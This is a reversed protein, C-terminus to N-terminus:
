SNRTQTSRKRPSSECSVKCARKLINDSNCRFTLTGLEKGRGWSPDDAELETFNVIKEAMRVIERNQEKRISEMIKEKNWSV